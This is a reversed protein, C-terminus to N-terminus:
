PPVTPLGVPCDPGCPNPSGTWGGQRLVRAVQAATECPRATVPKWGYRLTRVSETEALENDRIDDRDKENPPHAAQGDLEVVLGFKQYRVDRYRRRGPIGEARNRAGCPLGHAIEVDRRYNRELMSLVGAQVDALVDLLLQRRSMKKRRGATRALRTATTLRRQCARMVVDIACEATPARDVLDIVTDELRTTPPERAPHRRAALDRRIHIHLGPKPAVRRTAPVFIHVDAPPEDRLEWTWEASQLALAAEPGAYLLFVWCLALYDLPGTHTVYVGEMSPAGRQWREAALQSQIQRDTMGLRVLQARSVAGAQRDALAAIEALPLRRDGNTV